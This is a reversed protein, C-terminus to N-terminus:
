VYGLIYIILLKEACSQSFLTGFYIIFIYRRIENKHINCKLIKGAVVDEFNSM